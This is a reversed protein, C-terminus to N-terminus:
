QLFMALIYQFLGYFENCSLLIRDIRPPRTLAQCTLSNIVEELLLLALLRRLLARSQGSAGSGLPIRFHETCPPQPLQQPAMPMQILLSSSEEPIPDGHVLGAQAPGPSPKHPPPAAQPGGPQTLLPSSCRRCRKSNLLSLVPCSSNERSMLSTISGVSDAM